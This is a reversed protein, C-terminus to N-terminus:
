VHIKTSPGKSNENDDTSDRRQGIKTGATFLEAVSKETDPVLIEAAIQKNLEETGKVVPDGSTIINKM